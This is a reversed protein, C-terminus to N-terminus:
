IVVEGSQSHCLGGWGRYVAGESILRRVAVRLRDEGVIGDFAAVLESWYVPCPLGRLMKDLIAELEENGLARGVLIDDVIMAEMRDEVVSLVYARMREM